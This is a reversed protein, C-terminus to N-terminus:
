PLNKKQKRTKMTKVPDKALVVTNGYYLVTYINHKGCKSYAHKDCHIACTMLKRFPPVTNVRRDCRQLHKVM